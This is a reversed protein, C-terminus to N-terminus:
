SVLNKKQGYDRQKNYNRKRFSLGFINSLPLRKYRGTILSHYCFTIDMVM